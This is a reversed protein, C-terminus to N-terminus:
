LAPWAAPVFQTAAAQFHADFGALTARWRLFDPELALEIIWVNVLRSLLAIAATGGELERLDVVLIMEQFRTAANDIQTCCRPSPALHGAGADFGDIALAFNHSDVHM